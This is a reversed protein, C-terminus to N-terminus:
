AVNIDLLLSVLGTPNLTGFDVRSIMGVGSILGPDPTQVIQGYTSRLIGLKQIRRVGAFLHGTAHSNSIYHYCGMFYFGNEIGNKLATDALNFGNAQAFAELYEFDAARWVIFLGNKAALDMGNAVNVIRRVARIIDDINTASVTIDSESGTAIDAGSMGVNTWSAHDDLVGTEIAENLLAAQRDAMEMQSTYQCQALDARDIFIPAVYGTAIDVTENTLAFDSMTYATGRTLSAASFATSMYPVNIIKNDTYIVDCVDKWCTPKNLREQLRAVYEEKYVGANLTNAM